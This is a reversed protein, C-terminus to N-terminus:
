YIKEQFSSGRIIEGVLDLEYQKSVVERDAGNKISVFSPLIIGTVLFFITLFLKVKDRSYYEASRKLKKTIM